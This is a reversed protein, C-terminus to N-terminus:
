PTVVWVFMKKPSYITWFHKKYHALFNFIHYYLRRCAKFHFAVCKYYVMQSPPKLSLQGWKYKSQVFVPNKADAYLWFCIIDLPIDGLDKPHNTLNRPSHTLRLLKSKIDNLKWFLNLILVLSFLIQFLYLYLTVSSLLNTIQM